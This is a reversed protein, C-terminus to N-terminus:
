RLGAAPNWLTSNSEFFAVSCAKLSGGQTTYQVMEFPGQIHTTGAPKVLERELTEPHTLWFWREAQKWHPISRGTVPKKAVVITNGKEGVNREQPTTRPASSVPQMPSHLLAARAPRTAQRIVPRAAPELVQAQVAPRRPAPTASRIIPRPAPQATVAQPSAAQAPARRRNRTLSM